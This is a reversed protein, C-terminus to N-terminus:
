LYGMIFAYSPRGSPYFQFPYFHWPELAEIPHRWPLRPMQRFSALWKVRRYAYFLYAKDTHYTRGATELWPDVWDVVGWVGKGPKVAWQRPGEVPYYSEDVPYSRPAQKTAESYDIARKTAAFGKPWGVHVGQVTPQRNRAMRM